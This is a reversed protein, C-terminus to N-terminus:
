RGMRYLIVRTISDVIFILIFAGFVFLPLIGVDFTISRYGMYGLWGWTSMIGFVYIGWFAGFGYWRAKRQIMIDREDMDPGYLIVDTVHQEDAVLSSDKQKKFYLYLTFALLTVISVILFVLLVNVEDSITGFVKMWILIGIFISVYVGGFLIYKYLRHRQKLQKTRM